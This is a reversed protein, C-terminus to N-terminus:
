ELANILQANSLYKRHMTKEHNNLHAKRKFRKFCIDCVYPCEGTHIRKHVKLNSKRQFVKYCIDCIYCTKTSTNSHTVTVSDTREHVHTHRMLWRRTSFHKYCVTCIYRPQDTNWLPRVCYERQKELDTPAPVIEEMPIANKSCRKGIALHSYEHNKLHANLMFSQGCTDCIYPREGTHIMKHTSLQYQHKCIKPCMDCVYLKEKSHLKLDDENTETIEQNPSKISSPILKLWPIEFDLSDLDVDTETHTLELVRM